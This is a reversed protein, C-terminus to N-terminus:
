DEIISNNEFSIETIYMIEEMKTHLYYFTIDYCKCVAVFSDDIPYLENLTDNEMPTITINTTNFIEELKKGISYFSVRHHLLEQVKKIREDIM